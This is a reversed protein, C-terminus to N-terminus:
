AAEEVAAGDSVKPKNPNNNMLWDALWTYPDEPKIKCLETLGVLLTPNIFRSLYDKAAEGM